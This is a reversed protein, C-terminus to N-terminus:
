RNAARWAIFACLGADEVGFPTQRGIVELVDVCVKTFSDTQLSESVDEPTIYNRGAAEAITTICNM